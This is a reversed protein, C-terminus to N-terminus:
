DEIDIHLDCADKGWDEEDIVLDDKFDTNVGIEATNTCQKVIYSNKKTTVHQCSADAYSTASAAGTSSEAVGTQCDVNFISAGLPSGLLRLKALQCERHRDLKAKESQYTKDEDNM